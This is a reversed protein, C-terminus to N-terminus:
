RLIEAVMAVEGPASTLEIVLGMALEGIGSGPIVDIGGAGAGHKRGLAFAVFVPKTGLEFGVRDDGAEDVPSWGIMGDLGIGIPLGCVTRGLEQLPIVVFGKEETAADVQWVKGPIGRLLEEVQMWEFVDNERGVFRIVEVVDGGRAFAHAFTVYPVDPLAAFPLFRNLGAEGGIRKGVGANTMHEIGQGLTRVLVVGDDDQPSVVTIVDPFLFNALHGKPFM